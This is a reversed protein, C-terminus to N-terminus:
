KFVHKVIDCGWQVIKDKTFDIEGKWVWSICKSRTKQYTDALMYCSSKTKLELFAESLREVNSHQIIDKEELALFINETPSDSNKLADAYDESIGFFNALRM